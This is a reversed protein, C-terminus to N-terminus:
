LVKEYCYFPHESQKPFYISELRQYGRAEYFRQNRQNQSFTDLRVSVAGEKKALDEAFDMLHRAWGKGQYAPHVAVRHIYRQNSDETLWAIPEYEADKLTSITISGVVTQDLELVYLEDRKLDKEFALKNPYHENWQFIGDEIMKAACAKTITIIKEIESQNARRIM